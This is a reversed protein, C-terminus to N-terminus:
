RRQELAHRNIGMSSVGRPLRIAQKTAYVLANEARMTRCKRPPENGHPSRSQRISFYKAISISSRWPLCKSRGQNRGAQPKKKPSEIQKSANGIKSPRAEVLTHHREPNQLNLTIVGVREGYPRLLLISQFPNESMATMEIEKATRKKKCM